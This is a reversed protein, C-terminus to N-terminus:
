YVCVIVIVCASYHGHQETGKQIVTCPVDKLVVVCVCVCVFYHGHQETGKPTVVCPVDKLVVWKFRPLYYVMHTHTHTHTHTGRADFPQTNIPDDLVM